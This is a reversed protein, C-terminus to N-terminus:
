AEFLSKSMKNIVKNGIKELNDKNIDNIDSIDVYIIDYELCVDKYKKNLYDIVDLVDENLSSFPNYPGIFVIDEKCYERMLKFLQELDYTLDDIYDYVDNYIINPDSLKSYIDDYNINLTVLDAKILANKISTSGKSTTIKINNNIDNIIDTSRTDVRAYGDLYKELLDKKELYKKIYHAYGYVEENNVYEKELSDGLAVYYVKNDMNALYILFISLFVLGIILIKRMLDGM